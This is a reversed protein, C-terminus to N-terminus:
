LETISVLQAKWTATAAGNSASFGIKCGNTPLDGSLDSTTLRLVDDIYVKVETSEFIVKCQHSGELQTNATLSYYNNYSPYPFGDLTEYTNTDFAGLFPATPQSGNKFTDFAIGLIRSTQTPKFLALCGGGAGIFTSLTNSATVAFCLGDGYDGIGGGEVMEYNFVAEFPVNYTKSYWATGYDGYGANAMRLYGQDWVSDGNLTWFDNTYDTLGTFATVFWTDRTIDHNVGQVWGIQQITSNGALTRRVIIPIFFIDFYFAAILRDIQQYDTLNLGIQNIRLNINSRNPLITNALDTLETTTSFLVNRREASSIYYQNQSTTNVVTVETSGNYSVVTLENVLIDDDYSLQITNYSTAAGDDSFEYADNVDPATNTTTRNKFQLNGSGDFYVLGAETKEVQRIADLVTRLDGPDDDLEISTTEFVELTSTWNTVEDLIERLRVDSKDNNAAGAVDTISLTNLLMFGDYAEVTIKNAENYGMSFNTLYTSVYGTFIDPYRFEGTGDDYLPYLRIKNGPKLKEFYPSIFNQPNFDGNEDIIEIVAYGAEISDTIKNRGRRTSASLVIDSIDYCDESSENFVLGDSLDLLVKLIPKSAM